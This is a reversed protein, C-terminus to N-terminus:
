QACGPLVRSTTSSFSGGLFTTSHTGRVSVTVRKGPTGANSPFRLVRTVSEGSRITEYYTPLETTPLKGNLTVRYLQVNNLYSPSLNSVTLAMVYEGTACDRTLNASSRVLPPLPLYDDPIADLNEDAFWGIDRLLPLTLDQPPKVSHTLDGSLNPEMLQNPRAITDWHSLSSGPDAPDPTYLLARNNPDAGARQSPNVGLTVNVTSGGTVATRIKNGDALSLLVSPITISPDPGLGIGFPPSGPVNNVILAGIAGADQANKVKVSFDCQGRDMLAIKGSVNSTIPECANTVPDVGDIALAVSGTLGPASLPPGFSASGVPYIGAIGAPSNVRLQPTGLALVSPVAATVNAGVWVVNRPNVASAKREANTMVNWRKGISNDFMYRTYIDDLGDFEEGTTEDVFSLFGLGHAFEHLLVAVLNNQNPGENTDLGYYWGGGELCGPKGLNANFRAVIDDAITGPPGEQLDFSARKNALAVPYWTNPFETGPFDTFVLIPGASGLTAATATCDLKIFAANIRIEVNSDLTAGWIDAAFQFAKLRQEGVTTGTNGGVPQAPTPDNFGVGPANVNVITITASAFVTTSFTVLLAILLALVPLARG